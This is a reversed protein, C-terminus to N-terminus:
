FRITFTTTISMWDHLDNGGFDDLLSAPKSYLLAVNLFASEGIVRTYDLSIDDALHKSGGLIDSLGPVSPDLGVPSNIENTRIHFYKLGVIDRPSLKASLGIRHVQINTNGLILAANGGTAWADGGGFLPDFRELRATDPDDGSVTHFNYSLTPAFPLDKFTNGFGIRAGWAKMDIRDNWEYGIDGSVYFDPMTDALPNAKAYVNIFNLGDRGNPITRLGAGRATSQPYPAVSEIVHGGVIGALQGEGINYEVKAGALTTNTDPDYIEDADLYFTDVSWPGGSLKLIVSKDWAKFPALTVAGRASGEPSGDNLFMGTGAVYPQAGASVDVGVSGANFRVGVFSNDFSLKQVDRTGVVDEDITVSALASVGGYIEAGSEMPLSFDLSVKAYGEFWQYDVPAGPFFADALGWYTNDSSFYAGTIEYSPDFKLGEQAMAAGAWAAPCLALFISTNARKM